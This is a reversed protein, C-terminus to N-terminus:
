TRERKIQQAFKNFFVRRPARAGPLACQALSLVVLKSAKVITWTRQSSLEFPKGPKPGSRLPFARSGAFTRNGEVSGYDDPLCLRHSCDPIGQIQKSDEAQSLSRRSRGAYRCFLVV